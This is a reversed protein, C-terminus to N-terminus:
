MTFLSTRTAIHAGIRFHAPHRLRVWSHNAASSSWLQSQSDDVYMNFACCKFFCDNASIIILLCTNRAWLRLFNSPKTNQLACNRRIVINMIFNLYLSITHHIFLKLCFMWRLQYSDHWTIYVTCIIYILHRTM